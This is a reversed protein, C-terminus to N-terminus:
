EVNAAQERLSAVMGKMEVITRSQASDDAKSGMTNLERHMEQIIFELKRGVPGGSSDLVERAHEAHSLLRQAEESIDSRDAMLALEQVLREGDVDVDAALEAVRERLRQFREEVSSRQRDMMSPMMDALKEFGERFIVLLGEGERARTEELGDLAESLVTRFANSIEEADLESVDAREAVGPLSLLDSASFGGDLGLESSIRSAASAYARAAEMSISLGSAGEGLARLDADVRFRGRAFRGAIAASAEPEMASLPGHLRLSLSLSRHNESRVEVTLQFGSGRWSARGFGTMSNM